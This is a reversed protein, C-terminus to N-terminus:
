ENELSGKSVRFAVASADDFQKIRPFERLDSDRVELHRMREVSASFKREIANSFIEECSILGYVDAMAMFGDSALLILDDLQLKVEAAELFELCDPDSTLASYGTPTNMKNRNRRLQALTEEQAQDAPLGGHVKIAIDDIVTQDLSNLSAKEFVEVVQGKRFLLCRCDGLRHFIGIKGRTHFSVLGASPELYQPGSSDRPGLSRSVADLSVALARKLETDPSWARRLENSVSRVFESANMRVKKESGQLGTAGDMLVSLGDLLVILDENQQRQPSKDSIQEILRIEYMM